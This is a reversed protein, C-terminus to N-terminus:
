PPKNPYDKPFNIRFPILMGFYLTDDSPMLYGRWESINEENLAVKFLDQKEKQVKDFDKLIRRSSYSSM